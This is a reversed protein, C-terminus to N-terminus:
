SARRLESAVVMQAARAAAASAQAVSEPIDMPGHACGCVYIGPRTTDLPHATETKFFGFEDTDIGLIAALEGVGKGPVCATALIVMDFTQDKVIRERTDEYTVVPNHDSGETIEAIRGRVYSIGSQNGGRVKYEEFGKGVARIDM